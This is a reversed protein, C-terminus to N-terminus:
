TKTIDQVIKFKFKAITKIHSAANTMQVDYYYTAPTQDTNVTTPTFTVVGTNAVQDVDVLGVVQFVQDTEDTPTKTSNVTLLFSYGTIDIAVGTSKNKITLELPYSDGRYWEIDSLLDAM